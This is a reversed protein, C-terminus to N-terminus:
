TTAFVTKWDDRMSAITWGSQQGLDTISGSSRVVAGQGEYAFEREADDHHVLLGLNPGKFTLAFDLMERDGWTNGAAFIPRRGLSRQIGEVKAAGEMANGDIRGTRVITPRGDRDLLEYAILTGVVGEADVGYLQRSIARVFETGGGTVIFTAFDAARLADLLERMPAYVLKNYPAGLTPHRATNVFRGVKAAFEDPELGVFLEALALALREMGLREIAEADRDLVATYEPREHLAADRAVADRLEAVFFDLQVYNPRECWLTGDNDFVAVREEPRVDGASRLFALITNRTAGPRWCALTEDNV